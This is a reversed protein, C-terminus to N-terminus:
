DKGGEEEMVTVSHIYYPTTKGTKFPWGSEHFAQSIIFTPINQKAKQRRSRILIPFMTISELNLVEKLPIPPVPPLPSNTLPKRITTTSHLQKNSLTQFDQPGYCNNQDLNNFYPIFGEKSLYASVVRTDRDEVFIYTNNGTLIALEYAKKFLGVRRKNFSALRSRKNQIHKIEIKKRGM